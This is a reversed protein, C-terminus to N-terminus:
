RSIEYMAYSIELNIGYVAAILSVCPIKLYQLNRYSFLGQLKWRLRVGFYTIRPIARWPIEPCIRTLLFALGRSARESAPFVNM